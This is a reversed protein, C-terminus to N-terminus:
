AAVVGCIWCELTEIGAVDLVLAAHDYTGNCVPCSPAPGEFDVEVGIELEALLETFEMRTIRFANQSLFTM